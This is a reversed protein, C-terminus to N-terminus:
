RFLRRYLPVSIAPQVDGISKMLARYYNQAPPQSTFEDEAIAISAREQWRLPHHHTNLLLGFLQDQLLTKAHVLDATQFQEPGAQALFHLRPDLTTYTMGNIGSKTFDTYQLYRFALGTQITRYGEAQGAVIFLEVQKLSITSSGHVNGDYETLNWHSSLDVIKHKLALRISPTPPDFILSPAPDITGVKWIGRVEELQDRAGVTDLLPSLNAILAAVREQEQRAVEQMKKQAELTAQQASQHAIQESRIRIAEKEAIEKAAEAQAQALRETLSPM